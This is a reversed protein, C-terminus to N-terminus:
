TNVSFYIEGHNKVESPSSEPSSKKTVSFSKLLEDYANNDNITKDDMKIEETFGYNM